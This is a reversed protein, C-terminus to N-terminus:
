PADIRGGHARRGGALVLLDVVFPRHAVGALEALAMAIRARSAGPPIGVLAWGAEPDALERGREVRLASVSTYVAIKMRPLRLLSLARMAFALRDFPEPDEHEFRREREVFVHPAPAVMSDDNHASGARKAAAVQSAAGFDASPLPIIRVNRRL